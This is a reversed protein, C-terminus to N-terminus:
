NFPHPDGVQGAPRESANREREIDRSRELSDVLLVFIACSALVVVAIGILTWM